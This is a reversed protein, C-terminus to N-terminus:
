YQNGKRIVCYLRLCVYNCSSLLQGAPRLQATFTDLGIPSTWLLASVPTTSFSFNFKRGGGAKREKERESHVKVVAPEKMKKRLTLRLTFTTVMSHTYQVSGLAVQRGWLFRALHTYYNGAASPLPWRLMRQPSKNRYIKFKLYNYM